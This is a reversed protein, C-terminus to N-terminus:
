LSQGIKEYVRALQKTESIDSQVVYINFRIHNHFQITSIGRSPLHFFNRAKQTLKGNLPHKKLPFVSDHLSFLLNYIIYIVNLM